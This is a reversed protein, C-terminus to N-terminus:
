ARVSRHHDVEAARDLLTQEFPRADHRAAAADRRGTAVAELDPPDGVPGVLHALRYPLLDRGARLHDLRKEVPPMRPSPAGGSTECYVGSSVAAATASACLAPSRMVVCACPEPPIRTAASAPISESSCAVSRSSFVTRGM